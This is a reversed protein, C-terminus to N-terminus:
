KEWNEYIMLKDRNVIYLEGTEGLGDLQKLHGFEGTIGRRTIRRICDGNYRTLMMGVPLQEEKGLLLSAIDFFTNQKSEPFYLLDNIYSGRKITESFYSEASVDRHLLGTDTSSIVKGDIDVVFLSLIDPDLHHISTTLYNNLRETHALIRDDKKIIQETSDRIFDDSGFDITRGKKRTLVIKVNNHLMDNAIELQNFINREFTKKTYFYCFAVAVVAILLSPLLLWLLIKNRIAM